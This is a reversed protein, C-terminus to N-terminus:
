QWDVIPYLNFGQLVTKDWNGHEDIGFFEASLNKVALGGILRAEFALSEAVLRGAKTSRTIMALKPSM